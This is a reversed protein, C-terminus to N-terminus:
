VRSKSQCTIFPVHCYLVKLLVFLTIFSTVAEARQDRMHAERTAGDSEGIM